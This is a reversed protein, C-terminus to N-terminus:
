GVIAYFTGAQPTLGDYEAQTVQIINTILTGVGGEQQSEVMNAIAAPQVATNALTGQAATAYATSATTAATGLGLATRAAAANAGEAVFAPKGSITTWALNNMADTLQAISNGYATTADQVSGNALGGGPSVFEVDINSATLTVDPGPDGNITLVGGGGGGSSKFLITGLAECLSEYDEFTEGDVEVQTTLSNASISSVKNSISVRSGDSNKSLVWGSTDLLVGNLLIGNGETSISIAM